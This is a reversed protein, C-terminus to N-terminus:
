GIVHPFHHFDHDNKLKGDHEMMKGHEDFM